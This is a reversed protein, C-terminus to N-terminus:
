HAPLFARLFMGFLMGGLICAFAALSIALPNV